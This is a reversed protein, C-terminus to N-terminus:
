KRNPILAKGGRKIVDFFSLSKVMRRADVYGQIARLLRKNDRSSFTYTGNTKTIIAFRPIWRGKLIVSASVFNIEQWPIQIYDEVNKDNYFEFAKDGIMVKGYTAMGMYSTANITLDVKTNLSQAM